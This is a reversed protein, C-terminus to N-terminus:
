HEKYISKRWWKIGNLGSKQTMSIFFIEQATRTTAAEMLAAKAASSTEAGAGEGVPPADPVRGTTPDKIPAERTDNKAQCCPEVFNALRHKKNEECSNIEM